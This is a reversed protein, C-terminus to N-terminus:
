NRVFAGVVVGHKIEALQMILYIIFTIIGVLFSVKGPSEQYTVGQQKEIRSFQAVNLPAQTDHM